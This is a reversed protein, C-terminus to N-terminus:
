PKRSKMAIGNGALAVGPSTGDYTVDIAGTANAVATPAFEVFFSCTKKLAIAEGLCTNPGGAISFPATATVSSIQAPVNGKNTLTVKKPKSTETTDINGFNVKTPSATLLTQTAIEFVTGWGESSSGGLNTTGFLNGNSDRLLGAVPVVGDKGNGFSWLIAETWNGGSASPPMLEFAIGGRDSPSAYAGGGNTTGYLNGSGDM